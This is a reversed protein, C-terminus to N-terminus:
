RRLTTSPSERFRQRYHASFRGLHTFGWRTAVATVTTTSPDSAVLEQRVRQLRTERLFGMPTSDMQHRFGAMLARVSIGVAEAIDAMTIPEAAHAEILEVARHITTSPTPRPHAATALLAQTEATLADDPAAGNQRASGRLYHSLGATLVVDIEKHDLRGLARAWHPALPVNLTAQPNRPAAWTGVM